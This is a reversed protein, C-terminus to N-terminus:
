LELKRGQWGNFRTQLRQVATNLFILAHITISQSGTFISMKAPILNNEEISNPSRIITRRSCEKAQCRWFDEAVVIYDGVSTFGNILAWHFCLKLSSTMVVCSRMEVSLSSKPKQRVNIKEHTKWIWLFSHNPQVLLFYYKLKSLFVSYFVSFHHCALLFWRKIERLHFPPKSFLPGAGLYFTFLIFYLNSFLPGAAAWFWRKKNRENSFTFLPFHLNSFLPGNQRWSYLFHCKLKSWLKQLHLLIHCWQFVKLNQLGLARSCAALAAASAAAHPAVLGKTTRMFM